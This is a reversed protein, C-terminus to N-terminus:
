SNAASKMSSHFRLHVLMAIVGILAGLAERSEEIWPKDPAMSEILHDDPHTGVWEFLSPLHYAFFGTFLLLALRNVWVNYRGVTGFGSIVALIGYLIMWRLPDPDNYQVVAFVVFLLTFIASTIKM